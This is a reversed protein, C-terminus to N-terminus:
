FFLTVFSIDDVNEAIESDIPMSGFVELFCDWASIFLIVVEEKFSKILSSVM